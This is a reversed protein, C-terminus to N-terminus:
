TCRWWTKGPGISREVLGLLAPRYPVPTLQKVQLAKVLADLVKGNLEPAGDMVVERMHGYVFVLKNAIFKAIDQATHHPVAAVVAYRTAYDVAAVVNRNGEATVPLPGADDLAWRDGASGVGQSRLPPIVEREAQDIEVRLRQVVAGMKKSGDSQVIYVIEDEVVIVRDRYKGKRRLNKVMRDKAQEKGIVEDVLQGVSSAAGPEDAPREAAGVVAGVPARSLADAVVNSTGARYIIEFDYEQLQLAWRHLRGTWEKLTMLWKLAAHDTVHEFRRGYLYPRSLKVAWVVAACELTGDKKKVLVVPFGWAENGEEIVGDNLMKEVQEDVVPQESHSHRRPRVKVPAELGTHIEHTVGLTTMPPCGSRPELLAPYNRLLQFILEKDHEDMDGLALESENSLPAKNQRLDHLWSRVRDHGLEGTM